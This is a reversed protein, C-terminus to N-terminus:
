RNIDIRDEPNFGFAMDGEMTFSMCWSYDDAIIYHHQPIGLVKKLNSKLVEIPMIFASEIASDGIVIVKGNLNNKKCMKMFFSLCSEIYEDDKAIEEVSGPVEEWDIKSGVVPFKSGLQAFYNDSSKDVVVDGSKILGDLSLLLEEEFTM